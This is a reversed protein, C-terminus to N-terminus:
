EKLQELKKRASGEISEADRKHASDPFASVFKDYSKITEEFRAIKKKTISNIALLYNSRLKHYLIEEKYVSQPFDTLCVDFLVAAAKYQQTKYALMAVEFKKRDLKLSLKDIIKNCTDRYETDPYRDLFLQLQDIAGETDTQDLTYSPSIKVKCLASKFLASQARPDFSNNKHFQKFYYGALYYDGQLYHCESYKYYCTRGFEETRHPAILDEYISQAKYYDGNTFYKEAYKFRLQDDDHKMVKRYSLDKGDPNVMVKEGSGCSALVATLVVCIGLVRFKM